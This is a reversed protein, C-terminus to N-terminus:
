NIGNQRGTPAHQYVLYLPRHLTDWHTDTYSHRCHKLANPEQIYELNSIM